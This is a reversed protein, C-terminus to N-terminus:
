GGPGGKELPPSLRPFRLLLRWFTLYVLPAAVGLEACLQLYDNHTEKVEGGLATKFFSYNEAFGGLGVGSLPSHAIMRLAAKWYEFRVQISAGFPQPGFVGALGLALLVLLMVVLVITATGALRKFRPFGASLRQALFFWAGLGCAVCAGKSGTLYLAWLLILLVLGGAIRRPSPWKEAPAANLSGEPSKVPDICLGALLWIGILLFAALSNPNIFSAFIRAGKFRAQGASSQLTEPLALAGSAAHRWMQPFDVYHQWLGACAEVAAMAVVARCIVGLLAPNQRTMFFGCLLLLMYLAADTAVPLGGGLHPSNLAGLSNLGLWLIVLAVLGEPAYVRPRGLWVALGVMVALLVLMLGTLGSESGYYFQGAAPRAVIYMALLLLAGLNLAGM